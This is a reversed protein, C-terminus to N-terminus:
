PWLLQEIPKLKSTLGEHVNHSYTNSVYLSWAAVLQRGQILSVSTLDDTTVLKLHELKNVGVRQSVLHSAIAAADAAEIDDGLIGKINEM